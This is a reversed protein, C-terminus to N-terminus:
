VKKKKGPKGSGDFLSTIIEAHSKYNFHVMKVKGKHNGTGISKM